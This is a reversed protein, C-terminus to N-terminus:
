SQYKIKLKIVKNKPSPKGKSKRKKHDYENEISKLQKNDIEICNEYDKNIPSSDTTKDSDPIEDSDDRDHCDQRPQLMWNQRDVEAGYYVFLEEGAKIDRNTWCIVQNIEHGELFIMNGSPDENMFHFPCYVNGKQDTYPMGDKDTADLITHKYRMSYDAAMGINDKHLEFEEELMPVGFYFGLPTANPIDRKAFLGNGANPITSPKVEVLEDISKPVSSYDFWEHIEETQIYTILESQASSANSDTTECSSKDLIHDNNDKNKLKSCNNHAHKKATVPSLNSETIFTKSKGKFTKTRKTLTYICLIGNEKCRSCSPFKSDCHKKEICRVCTMDVNTDVGVSLMFIKKDSSVNDKLKGFLLPWDHEILKKTWSDYYGYFEDFDNPTFSLKYHSKSGPDKKFPIFYKEAVYTLCASASNEPTHGNYCRPLGTKHSIRKDLYLAAEILDKRPMSYNPANQLIIMLLHAQNHWKPRILPPILCTHNPDDVNDLKLMKLFHNEAFSKFFEKDGDLINTKVLDQFKIGMKNAVTQICSFFYELSTRQEKEIFFHRSIEDLHPYVIFVNRDSNFKATCDKLFKSIAERTGIWDRHSHQLVTKAINMFNPDIEISTTEEAAHAPSLKLLLANRLKETTESDANDPNPTIELLDEILYLRSLDDIQALRSMASAFKELSLESLVKIAIDKIVDEWAQEVTLDRQLKPVIRPELWKKLVESLEVPKKSKKSM